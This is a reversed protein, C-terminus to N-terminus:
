ECSIKDMRKDKIIIAKDGSIIDFEQECNLFPNEERWIGFVSFNDKLGQQVLEKYKWTKMHNIPTLYIEKGYENSSIEQFIAKVGPDQLEKIIINTTFNSACIVSDCGAMKLQEIKEEHIVECITFVDPNTKELTLTIGINVDDSHFDKPDQSLIIAHSAHRASAQELTKLSSVNGKVFHIKDKELSHPLRNLNNNVLCIQKSKTIKDSFLDKIIKEIIQQNPYNIILVHDKLKIKSMGKSRKNRIEILRSASESIIFGLFGIGILMTPVAIFYRVMNNHPYLDGYGVTTM